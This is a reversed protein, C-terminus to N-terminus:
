IPDIVTSQLGPGKKEYMNCVFTIYAISTCRVGQQVIVNVVFRRAGCKTPVQNLPGWKPQSRTGIPMPSQLSLTQLAPRQWLHVESNSTEKTRKPNPPTKNNPNKRKKGVVPNQNGALPDKRLAKPRAMWHPPRQPIVQRWRNQRYHRKMKSRPPMINATVSEERHGSRSWTNSRM